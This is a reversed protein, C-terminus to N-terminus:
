GFTVTNNLGSIVPMLDNLIPSMAAVTAIISSSEIKKLILEAGHEGARSYFRDLAAFSEALDRVAPSRQPQFTIVLDGESGGAGGGFGTYTSPLAPPQAM